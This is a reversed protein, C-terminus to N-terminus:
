PIEIVKKKSRRGAAIRLQAIPIHFYKALAKLIAINARGELPSEKVSVSYTHDSVKEM